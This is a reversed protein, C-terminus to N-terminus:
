SSTVGSNLAAAAPADSARLNNSSTLRTGRNSDVSKPSAHLEQENADKM